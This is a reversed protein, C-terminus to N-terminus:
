RDAGDGIRELRLMEYPHRGSHANIRVVVREAFAGPGQGKARATVSAVQVDAALGGLMQGLDILTAAVVPDRTSGDPDADSFVTMHPRLRALLEPTMGLVLGLEDISRFETGPPGYDRGAAVYQPAKAGLPRPQTSATRWDLMAAAVSAAVAPQAGVRLLLGQLLRDSAINPNIKGGEDDVRVAIVTPGLRIFHETGDAPWRREPRELLGFIAQQVAGDTAAELAAADVLNRALQAEGRGAAVLQTGLLALLSLTWLVVLLAFGAQRRDRGLRRGPGGQTM